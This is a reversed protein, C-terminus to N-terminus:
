PLEVDLAYIEQTSLDRVFLGSGDPTVGCWAGFQGSFTHFDTLDVQSVSRSEGLKVRRFSPHATFFTIFYLFHSDASWAPFGMAGEKELWTSWRGTQFDFLMLITSDSSLAALYRGDPSWRPSFLGSSGPISSAQLTKLDVLRIDLPEPDNQATLRGFVIRNGDPSWDPDIESRNEPLLEQPTGGQSPIIFIKWPRGWEAGLFIVKNGDPSWHPQTAAMSPYTLQLRESGDIRSRWITREPYSVYVVWKGDRTFALESASIGHLFPMFQQSASDYRVLEGRSVTGVAFVTKGDESTTFNSFSLPGTTLQQPTRRSQAWVRAEPLLWLNGSSMVRFIYHRGDHTWRGCCERSPTNWSPLLQRSHSGDTNVEWLSFTNRSEYLTYRLRRGDPSFRVDFPIGTTRSIAHSQSGDAHALFIHSDRTYALQAGDRSWTASRAVVEGLRTPAGSPLPLVWFRLESDTSQQDAVLLKSHDPSIDHIFVSTFPAPINSTEGGTISVQTLVDHGGREETFFLRSGDSFLASKPLGDNTLQRTAIVRPLPSPRFFDIIVEGLGFAVLAIAFIWFWHVTRQKKETITLIKSSDSERKLRKLEARVEAASQYRVERDKELCTAIIRELESPIRPNLRLPPPAVQHLIADFVAASTDGRFPLSGTAMEYMVVGFSFLDTRADLEQGLAQEPSMYSLTGVATGTTTLQLETATSESLNSGKSKALGFDLLKVHGSRTVFINGPKIDRHVINKSHAADLGDAIQLAFELLKDTELPRGCILDRLTQGDLYEMVIFPQGQQDGIEYITCINPHSLTSASRAERRFREYAQPDGAVAPPLFKIAVIRGLLDDEAKYVVGMGGSGLTELVRYHSVYRDSASQPALPM